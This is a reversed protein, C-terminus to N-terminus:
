KETTNTNDKNKSQDYVFDMVVRTSGDYSKSGHKEWYEWNSKDCEEATCGPPIKSVKKSTSAQQGEIPYNDNKCQKPHAFGKGDEMRKMMREFQTDNGYQDAM